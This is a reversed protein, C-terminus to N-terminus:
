RGPDSEFAAAVSHAYQATPGEGLGEATEALRRWRLELAQRPPRALPHESSPDRRTPHSPLFWWTSLWAWLLHADFMRERLVGDDGLQPWAAVVEARWAQVLKEGQEASIRPVCWCAPFPVLACAADLVVDRFGGGEFDLFQVGGANTMANDPCLDAPSFARHGGRGFLHTTRAARTAVAPPTDVGLSSHLVAPLGALAQRAPGELPDSWRTRGTHRLLAAFDDERGATAAHMRGLAQAWAILGRQALVPDDDCLVDSLTPGSGLDELVLIREDPDHAVLAAGPRHRLPLSNAFQYSVAERLFSEQVADENLDRASLIKKVVLTRPLSFPNERPRVRLVITRESGGLDVADGLHVPAGTRRALLRSAAQVVEDARDATLQSDGTM